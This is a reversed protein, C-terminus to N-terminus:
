YGLGHGFPYLVETASGAVPIDVPLRGSPEVEGFLVRLLSRNSASTASYTALYADVGTFYAIDYPDRMAVAVVPVGTAVLENVLERQEAWRADGARNTAVVVLDHGAAAAVAADIQAPTPNLGTGVGEAAVGREAMGAVLPETLTGTVLVSGTTGADLPLVGDNSVLTTTRDTIRGAAAQHLRNGVIRDVTGTDAYPDDFLGREYKMTLIRVVSADLREMSIEGSDVAALVANYQAAFAGEPSKLLMDVGAQVARVAIEEDTYDQRVGEMDLGDTVVVGDFGLEGRLVGTIIPESLTAPTGTPDLAPVVLHGTMVSDIGADVAARFPPLDLREWEERTHDIQPVELHSDQHTDGHGPFHKTTATVDAAQYGLVQAASYRAALGPDSSFSRVGIVPNLPNVNVDATPAYNQNIGMARLEAGTIYAATTAGLVSRGAALAMNGPFTTAPERIRTVVGQEQDTGIVLPVGAGSDAAARQLGNSLGAIQEPGGRLNNSWEFYIVGGLHYRSVVEAPTEVGFLEMNMAADAPDPNEADDGYVHPVFLQGVKQEVTMGAVIEAIEDPDATREVQRLAAPDPPGGSGPAPEAQAPIVAGASVLVALGGASLLSRLSRRVM